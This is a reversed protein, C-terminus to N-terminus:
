RNTVSSEEGSLTRLIPEAQNGGGNDWSIKGTVGQFEGIGAIADRLGTRSLGSERLSQILLNVADYTYAASPTPSTGYRERYTRAFEAYALSGTESFPQVYYIDGEYRKTLDEARLGPIWPILVPLHLKNSQFHDLLDLTEAPPLRTIIGEPYFSAARQVIDNFDVIPLSLQFHFFPPIQEAKMKTLIELAFIRGDHDTSTILGVKDLSLAQICKLVIIEAQEQDNPPLRFMWPIRIYTLSPDASVPSLLPVWAKTVIQEAIHTAGGDLSGIVAWVSDQYILRIMEKSGSGWPDYAWRKVLRYPIGQLGGAANAEAAALSAAKLMPDGVLGDPEDPAFFGIRIADLQRPYIITGRRGSFDVPTDLVGPPKDPQGTEPSAEIQSQLQTTCFFISWLIWLM